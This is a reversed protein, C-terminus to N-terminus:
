DKICRVSFGTGKKPHIRSVGNGCSLGRSWAAGLTFLDTPTSSWWNGYEEVNNNFFGNHDRSGGPLGNFGSENNGNCGYVWGKTSKLKEGNDFGLPEILSNWEDDSPIHWGAPALGRSDSVAYWNYLKGYIKGLVTDNNFYCWAPQENKTAEIWEKNTKAEFITDGNRFTNVNLNLSTWVKDGSTFEGENSEKKVCGILAITFILISIKPVLMFIRM